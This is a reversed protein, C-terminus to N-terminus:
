YSFYTRSTNEGTYKQGIYFQEPNVSGTKVSGNFDTESFNDTVISGNYPFPTIERMPQYHSAPSPPHGTYIHVSEPNRLQVKSENKNYGPVRSINADVSFFVLTTVMIAGFVSVVLIFLGLAAMYFSYGYSKEFTNQVGILYRSELMEANIVFVMLGIGLVLCALCIASDLIITGIKLFRPKFYVVVISILSITSLLLAIIVLTLVAYHWGFFYPTRLLKKRCDGILLFRCVDVKEYYNVVDDSFIYWCQGAGPCYLWLGSSVSRHVDTDEAVQWNPTILGFFVFFNSIAISIFTVLETKALRSSFDM